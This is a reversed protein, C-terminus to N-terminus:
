QLKGKVELDKNPVCTRTVTGPFPFPLGPPNYYDTVTKCNLIPNLDIEGISHFRTRGCILTLFKTENFGSPGFKNTHTHSLFVYSRGAQVAMM